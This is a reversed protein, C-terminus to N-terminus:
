SMKNAYITVDLYEQGKKVKDKLLTIKNVTRDNFSPYSYQYTDLLPKIVNDLDSLKNSLGATVEFAVDSDQFPWHTSTCMLQLKIQEQYNLYERTKRKHRM